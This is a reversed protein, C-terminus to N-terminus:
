KSRGRYIDVMKKALVRLVTSAPGLLFPSNVIRAEVSKGGFVGHVEMGSRTRLPEDMVDGFVTKLQNGFVGKDGVGAGVDSTIYFRIAVTDVALPTGEIRFGGDVKGTYGNKGISQARKRFEKDSYNALEALSESMDEKDGHYYVEIREVVGQVHARPSQGSLAKLSEISAEDFLRNNATVADEILCLVSDAVVPSGVQVVHSISQDFTLEVTKIKTIKTTLKQAIHKTIGSSDEHVGPSEWLVTPVEIANKLVVRKPNFFDPEFFGDNYVIADGIEVVDGEKLPTIVNHAITLGAASGFRRGLSYGQSSGDQYDVIIGRKDIQRVVGKKKATFAFLDTTRQPVVMDYGTRVSFQHYGECAVRHEQQIAIFNVRKPDDRDSGPSLLASTSLLNAPGHKSKDFRSSIGRLSTFLPDAPTFINIAVDSSDVTSESVTGMDNPHFGRTRKTMSRKNRGGVGALTIAESEKINKIPNIEQSQNKSPDDMVRKWVAYPSMEVQAGVKGLRANHQRLSQVLEAYVAGSIREYGKIRMFAPDLEDPHQNTLLLEASRILLGKFTTPEKMEVLLDKTIPDVFMQYMLEIERVYRVSLSNAELLNQYAGRKDFSYASFLRLTKWYEKFGALVLTAIRNARNFIWSEDSFQLAYEGATLNLRQGVPVIRYDAGLIQILNQLGLEMGLVVGLPINKGFVGVSVYETPANMNDIGLYNELSGLRAEAVNDGSLYLLSEADVSLYSAGDSALVVRGAKEAAKIINAPFTKRVEEIDFNFRYGNVTFGKFKESISSYSIPADLDPDFVDALVPDGLEDLRGLLQNQLWYGYNANNNRGRTLFCKGYYSTLAVRNAATKRIPLDGRQKRLRYKVGNSTFTGDPDVSPVKFRLTSPVGIVPVIKVIHEEYAGLIDEHPVVKYSTVAIGAKQLSMVMGATDRALVQEIYKSDFVNLSSQLMSKDLITPDDVMKAGEDLKLTEPPVAIFQEMTTLGDPSLMTKYTQSLRTYRAHEGSSIAGDTALKDCVRKIRDSLDDTETEAMVKDISQRTEVVAEQLQAITELQVLKADVQEDEVRVHDDFAQADLEDVDIQPQPVPALAAEVEAKVKKPDSTPTDTTDVVQGESDEDQDEPLDEVDDGIVEGTQPDDVVEEVKNAQTRIEMLYIQMALLRKALQLGTVQNDSTRIALKKQEIKEEPTDPKKWAYLHGLNLVFWKGSEQYIFNIRHLSEIPIKSFASEGGTLWQWLKLLTLANTDTFVKLLTQTMEQGALGLQNLSPIVKPSQLFFYHQHHPAAQLLEVTKDIATEFVNQWRYYNAYVSTQYRVLKNLFAYNIIIPTQKDRLAMDLTRLWKTRRHSQHYDKVMTPIDLSVTRPNGHRASIQTVHMVPWAHKIARMAYDDNPPGMSAGDLALYHYIAEQPFELYQIDSAHPAILQGLHRVGFKKYYTQQNLLM